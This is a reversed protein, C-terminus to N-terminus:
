EKQLFGKRILLSTFWVMQDDFTMHSNDLLEADAAQALPSIKRNTDQFDRDMINATIKDLDADIGKMKLEDYRRMARISPDAKMFIKIEADPFVVTGIDRGDMVIGKQQGYSQQLKVLYHRVEPIKSVPSVVSSVEAGRIEKEINEDNLHTTNEDNLTKFSILIDPLHGVLSITDIENNKILRNRLAYLAVARYMAGSDIYLYSLYRAILKAFSSKGCSSYGDVAVIIKKLLSIM